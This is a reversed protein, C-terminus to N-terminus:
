QPNSQPNRISSQPNGISSQKKPPGVPKVAIPGIGAGRMTQHLEPLDRTLLTNLRAINEDLQSTLQEISRMQADTPATTSAQLQGALDLIRFKPGGWGAKFKEKLEDVTKTTDKLRKDVSFPM